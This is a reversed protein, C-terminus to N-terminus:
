HKDCQVNLNEDETAHLKIKYHSPTFQRSGDVCAMVMEATRLLTGLALCALVLEPWIQLNSM